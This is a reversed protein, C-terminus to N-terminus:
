AGRFYWRGFRGITEVLTARDLFRNGAECSTEALLLCAHCAAGNLGAAGRLEGGGCLPDQACLETDRLADLLVPGFRDPIAQDVLGGLSGESDSSATYILLGAMPETGTASYIRERLASSSYGAELCLQRILVHALSHLLVYRMGPFPQISDADAAREAQFERYKVDLEAARVSVEPRAEWQSVVEEPLSLFIGEGRLEVAPRWTVSKPGLPAVDIDLKSVDALEGIDFGSEIRTFGRLARVERLRTAAAVTALRSAEPGPPLGVRRVEFEHPPQAPEPPDLFSKYEDPRLREVVVEDHVAKWVQTPSYRDLLDGVDYFGGEVGAVLKEVTDAQAVVDRYRAVDQQIPDSYPPISLASAVV